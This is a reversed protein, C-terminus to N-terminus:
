HDTWLGRVTSSMPANIETPDCFIATGTTNTLILFPVWNNQMQRKEILYRAGAEGSLTFRPPQGLQAEGIGFLGAVFFPQGLRLSYSQMNVLTSFQGTPTTTISSFWYKGGSARARAYTSGAAAEWPRVQLYAM